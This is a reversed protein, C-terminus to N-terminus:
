WGFYIQLIGIGILLILEFIVIKMPTDIFELAEFMDIFM